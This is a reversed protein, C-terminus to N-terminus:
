YDSVNISGQSTYYTIDLSLCFQMKKVTLSMKTSDLDFSINTVLGYCLDKVCVSPLTSNEFSINQHFSISFVFLTYM